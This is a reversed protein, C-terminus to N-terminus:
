CMWGCPERDPRALLEVQPCSRREFAVLCRQVRQRDNCCDRVPGNRDADCIPRAFSPPGETAVVHDTEGATSKNIM